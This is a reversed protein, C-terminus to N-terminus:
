KFKCWTSNRDWFRSKMNPKCNKNDVKGYYGDTSKIVNDLLKAEELANYEARRQAIEVKSPVFLWASGFTLLMILLCVGGLLYTVKWSLSKALEYSFDTGAEDLKDKTKTLIETLTSDVSEKLARSQIDYTDEYLKFFGQRSEFETKSNEAATELDIIQKEVKTAITSLTKTAQDIHTTFGKNILAHYDAQNKEFAANINNKLAQNTNDTLLQEKAQYTKLLSVLQKVLAAVQQSHEDNTKSQAKNDALLEQEYEILTQLTLVLEEVQISLANDTM